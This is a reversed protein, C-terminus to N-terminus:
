RAATSSADPWMLADVEKQVQEPVPGFEEDMEDLMKQLRVAQLRRKVADNVFASIGRPGAVRKLEDAVKDELTITIRIGKM